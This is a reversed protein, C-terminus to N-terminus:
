RRPIQVTALAGGDIVFETGTCYSSDDCALFLVLRAVEEVTGIRGVPLHSYLGARQDPPFQRSLAMDTDIAGPCIANVRIGLPGLEAAAVRTMGRVAFKSAAYASLGKAPVMGAQSAINVIAGGGNGKMVPIVYKMGLWCGHQNVEIVALYDAFEMDEIPVIRVVGANNVLVDVRGFSAVALDVANQWSAPDRVDLHCSIAAAGIGTAVEDALDDLVDAVLVKAGEAAFLSAEEAGQGRAGGTVIAVRGDLKGVQSQRERREDV